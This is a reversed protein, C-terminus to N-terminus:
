VILKRKFALKGIKVKNLNKKISLVQFYYNQGKASRAMWKDTSTIITDPKCLHINVIEHYNGTKTLILYYIKQGSSTSM